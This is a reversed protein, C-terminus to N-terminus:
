REDLVEAEMTDRRLSRVTELAMTYDDDSVAADLGLLSPGTLERVMDAMRRTYTTPSYGGSVMAFMQRLTLGEWLDLVDIAPLNWPAPPDALIDRAIRDSLARPDVGTENVLESFVSM